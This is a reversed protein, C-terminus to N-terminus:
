KRYGDRIPCKGDPGVNISLCTSFQNTLQCCLGTFKMGNGYRVSTDHRSFGGPDFSSSFFHNGAPITSKGPNM